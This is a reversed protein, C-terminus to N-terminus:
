RYHALLAQYRLDERLSAFEPAADIMDFGRFGQKFAENLSDIASDQAGKRAALVAQEFASPRVPRPPVELGHESLSVPAVQVPPSPPRQTQVAIAPVVASAMVPGAAQIKADPQPAPQAAVADHVRRYYVKGLVPADFHVRDTGDFFFSVGVGYPLELVAENDKQTIGNLPIRADTGPVAVAQESIVIDPGIPLHASFITAREAQWHGIISPRDQRSCAALMLGCAVTM